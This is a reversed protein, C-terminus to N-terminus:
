ICLSKHLSKARDKNLHYMFAQRQEDPSFLVHQINCSPMTHGAVVENNRHPVVANSENLIKSVCRSISKMRLRKIRNAIM